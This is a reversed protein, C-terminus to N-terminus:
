KAEIQCHQLLLLLARRSMSNYIWAIFFTSRMLYVYTYVKYIFHVFLSSFSFASLYIFNYASMRRMHIKELFGRRGYANSIIDHYIMYNMYANM